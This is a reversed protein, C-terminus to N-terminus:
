AAQAVIDERDPPPGLFHLVAAVHAPSLRQATDIPCIDRLVDALYVNGDARALAQDDDSLTGAPQRARFIDRKFCDHLQRDALDPYYAEALARKTMARVPTCADVSFTYARTRGKCPFLTYYDGANETLTQPQSLEIM